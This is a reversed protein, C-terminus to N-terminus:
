LQDEYHFGREAQRQITSIVAKATRYLTKTSVVSDKEEKEEFSFGTKLDKRFGINMDSTEFGMSTLRQSIEKRISDLQEERGQESGIFFGQVRDEAVQLKISIKGFHETEMSAEVMGKETESHVIQLHLAVISDETVVPIEYRETDALKAMFSLQKYLLGLEKADSFSIKEGEYLANELIKQQMEALSHYATVADEKEDFHETLEAINEKLKGDNDTIDACEKIKKFTKNGDKQYEQMAQANELTVPEELLELLEISSGQMKQSERFTEIQMKLYAADLEADPQMERLSEAFYELKTGEDLPQQMHALKDADLNEYAERALRRYYDGAAASGSGEDSKGSEQDGEKEEGSAFAANIQEDITLAERQVQQVTGFDDDIVADVRKARSTRLATLLNRFSLEAGENVLAGIVAGDSKEIQHLLRYIGIYSQKEEESIEKQQELKYLFRSYKEQEAEENQQQDRLYDDLEAINMQLPNKGDRIMKLAAAPTLKNVAGRLAQDANRVTEINEETIEMRNYGLIRVARKNDDTAELQLEDLLVEANRFAKRISDGMDARPATQLTEYSENAKQYASALAEGTEKVRSLTFETESDLVRGVVALPMKPIEKVTQLTETYLMARDATEETEKGGFLIENQKKEVNKLAEVLQELESTEIAYGSKLLERNASITMQLRTEELQRRATINEPAFSQKGSDIEEQAEYLNHLTLSNGKEAALEAAEDTLKQMHEWIESAQEWLSAKGTLDAELPTKGDSVAVAMAQFWEKQESPLVTKELGLYSSLTGKTLPIGNEIIWKAADESAATKDLGAEEIIRDIQLELSEWDTTDAKRALYGNEDQYYGSGKRNGDIGSSYQAMYLEQLTPQSGNEIMYKLTEEGPQQLFAAKELAQVATQATERTLPVGAESFADSMDQAMGVNGTIETLTEMDLTDTYGAISVGAQLLSAKIQDVITVATEVEISGTQFGNEQLRAFDEDSMCNSMVAMYNHTLAVNQGGAEQMIEETTKGHSKYIEHDKATGSIDLTYGSKTGIRQVASSQDTMRHMSTNQSNIESPQFTIKMTKEWLLLTFASNCESKIEAKEEREKVEKM